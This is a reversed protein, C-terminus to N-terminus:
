FAGEPDILRDEDGVYRAWALLEKTSLHPLAKRQDGWPWAPRRYSSIQRPGGVAYLMCEVHPFRLMYDEYVLHIEDVAAARALMACTKDTAELLREIADEMSRFCRYFMAKSFGSMEGVEMVGCKYGYEAISQEVALAVRFLRRADPLKAVNEKVVPDRDFPTLRTTIGTM